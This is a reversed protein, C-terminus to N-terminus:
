MAVSCKQLTVAKFINFLMNLAFGSEVESTYGYTGRMRFPGVRYAQLAALSQVMVFDGSSM